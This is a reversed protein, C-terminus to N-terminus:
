GTWGSNLADVILRADAENKVTGIVPWDHYLNTVYGQALIDYVTRSKLPGPVKRAEWKWPGPTHNAKGKSM